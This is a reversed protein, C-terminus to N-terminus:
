KLHRPMITVFSIKELIERRSETGALNGGGRVNFLAPQFASAMKM